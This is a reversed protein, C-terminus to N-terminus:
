GEVPRFLAADIRHFGEAEVRVQVYGDSGATFDFTGLERWGGSQEQQNVVFRDEGGAHRVVYVAATTTAANSPYWIAVLYRGAKELVPRWTATGGLRGEVSYRSATRNWGSLSSAAWWGTESYRPWPDADDVIVDTGQVLVNAAVTRGDPLRLTMRNQSGPVATAPATVTFSVTTEERGPVTIAVDAASATWGAAKVLTVTTTRPLPGVNLVTGRVTVQAGPKIPIAPDLVIPTLRLAQLVEVDAPDLDASGGSWTVQGTLTKTGAAAEGPVTVDYAWTGLAGAALEGNSGSRLSATWGDPVRLVVQVGSLATTGVRARVTVQFKDGATTDPACYIDGAVTTGAAVQGSVVSPLRLVVPEPTTPQGGVLVQYSFPATLDGVEVTWENPYYPAPLDVQESEGIRYRLTAPQENALQVYADYGAGDPRVLLLARQVGNPNTEDLHHDAKGRYPLVPRAHAPPHVEAGRVVVATIGHGPVSTTLRGDQITVQRVQGDLHVEAAYTRNPLVARDLKLTVPQQDPGANTLSLCLTGEAVGAIWDVQPTSADVLGRPLTLWVNEVGYFTGPRHGYLGFRFFVYNTEFDSPMSIRGGSRIVHRTILHDISMGLQAPIHSYYVSSIGSPGQYPFDPKMHAVDHQRSYYGPYNTYRGVVLNHAVDRLLDDGTREALRALFSAWVPIQSLGGGPNTNGPAPYVKYTSLQEFTVGNTSVVWAPVTETPVTTRPYDWIGPSDKWLDAQDLILPQNPVKVSGNPVPRLQTQTVFRRAEVRAAALLENDDALEGVLFLETWAKSYNYQFGNGAVNKTYPPDVERQVYRRAESRAEALYAANGTLLYAQLPTSMPTRSGKNPRNRIANMAMAFVGGSQEQGLRYLPVLTSADGPTGGLRYYSTSGETIKGKVPTWAHNERSLHFEVLPRARRKYLDADDSLLAAALLVGATSTRIAQDHEPDAFSKARAWWGSPSPTFGGDARAPPEVKILDLLNFVTQTMSTGYVNRRYRDYGYQVRAVHEYADSVSGPRAYLGFTFRSSQNAKLEARVGAQPAFAVAQVGRKENRLSMGFPQNASLLEREHVFPLSESAVFVGTTAKTTQLLTMPAMLEWAGLSEVDEIVRAHQRTGCLVEGVAAADKADGSQYGLVYQRERRALVTTRVLPDPGAVSWRLTLRHEGPTDTTLEVTRSDIKRLQDLSVWHPTMSTYYDGPSGDTGVMVVWQEDFRRAPDTLQIWTGRDNFWLDYVHSSGGDWSARHFVMRHTPGSITAVERLVLGPKDLDRLPVGASAPAAPAAASPLSGLAPALATGTLIALVTRRSLDDAM